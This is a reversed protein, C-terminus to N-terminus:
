SRFRCHGLAFIYIGLKSIFNVAVLQYGSATPQVIIPQVVGHQRISAALAELNAENFVKRPQEPNPSVAEVPVELVQRGAAAPTRPILSDLGRGLRREM